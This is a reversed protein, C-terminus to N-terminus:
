LIAPLTAWIRNVAKNSQINVNLLKATPVVNVFSSTTTTASSPAIRSLSPKLGAAISAIAMQPVPTIASVRPWPLIVIFVNAECTSLRSVAMPSMQANKSPADTTQKRPADSANCCSLVSTEAARVNAITRVIWVKSIPIQIVQRSDSCHYLSNCCHRQAVTMPTVPTRVEIQQNVAKVIWFALKTRETPM